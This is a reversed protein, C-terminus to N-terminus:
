PARWDPIAPANTGGPITMGGHYPYDAGSPDPTACGGLALILCAGALATLVAEAVVVGAPGRSYPASGRKAPPRYTAIPPPLSASCPTKRKRLPPARHLHLAQPDLHGDMQLPQGPTGRM